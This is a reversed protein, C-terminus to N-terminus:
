IEIDIGRLQKIPDWEAPKPDVSSSWPMGRGIWEQRLTQWRARRELENQGFDQYGFETGCSPCIDYSPSVDSAWPPEDFGIYGCVPCQYENNVSMPM